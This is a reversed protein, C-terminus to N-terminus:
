LSAIESAQFAFKTSFLVQRLLHKKRAPTALYEGIAFIDEDQAKCALKCIKPHSIHVQASAVALAL